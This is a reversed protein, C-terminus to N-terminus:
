QLRIVEKVKINITEYLNFQTYDIIINKLIESEKPSAAICKVTEKDPVLIVEM